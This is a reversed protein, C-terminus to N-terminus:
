NFRWSESSSAFEKFVCCILTVFPSISINGAVYAVAHSKKQQIELCYKLKIIHMVSRLESWRSTGCMKFITFFVTLVLLPKPRLSWALILLFFMSLPRLRYASSVSLSTSLLPLPFPVAAAAFLIINDVLLTSTSSSYIKGDLGLYSMLRTPNDSIIITVHNKKSIFWIGGTPLLCPPKITGDEM